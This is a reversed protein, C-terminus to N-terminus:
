AHLRPWVTVGNRNALTLACRLRALDQYCTESTDVLSRIQARLDGDTMRTFRQWEAARTRAEGRRDHQSWWSYTYRMGPKWEEPKTM